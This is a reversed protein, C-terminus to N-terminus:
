FPYLFDFRRIADYSGSSQHMIKRQKAAICLIKVVYRAKGNNVRMRQLLAYCLGNFVRGAPLCLFGPM